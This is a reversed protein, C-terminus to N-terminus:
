YPCGNAPGFNNSAPSANMGLAFDQTWTGSGTAFGRVARPSVGTGINRYAPNLINECHGTSAMWARVVSRPTAYGTAINEGAMRWDYGVASIRSAFNTGHTFQDSSVMVNTWGQASRNLLPSASLAPLHHLARQQNVLCVVATRLVQPATRAVPDGAGSCGSAARAPTRHARRRHHKHHKHHPAAIAVPAGALLSSGLVTLLALVLGALRPRQGGHAPRFRRRDTAM